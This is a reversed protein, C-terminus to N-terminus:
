NHAINNGNQETKKLHSVGYQVFLRYIVLHNPTFLYFLIEFFFFRLAFMGSRHM